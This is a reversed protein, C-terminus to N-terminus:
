IARLEEWYTRAATFTRLAEATYPNATNEGVVGWLALNKEEPACVRIRWLTERWNPDVGPSVLPIVKERGLGRALMERRWAMPGRNTFNNMSCMYGDVVDMWRFNDRPDYLYVFTDARLNRVASMAAYLWSEAHAWGQVREWNFLVFQPLNEATYGFHELAEEPKFATIDGRDFSGGNVEVGNDVRPMGGHAFVGDDIMAYTNDPHHLEMGGRDKLRGIWSIVM